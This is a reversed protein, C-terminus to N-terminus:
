PYIEGSVPKAEYKELGLGSATVKAFALGQKTIKCWPWRTQRKAFGMDVLEQIIHTYLKRDTYSFPGVITGVLNKYGALALVGNIAQESIQRM